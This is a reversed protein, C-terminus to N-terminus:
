GTESGFVPSRLTAFRERCRPRGEYSGRPLMTVAIMPVWIKGTDHFRVPRRGVRAGRGRQPAIWLQGANQETRLGGRQDNSSAMFLITDVTPVKTAITAVIVDCSLVPKAGLGKSQLEAVVLHAAESLPSHGERELAWGLLTLRERYPSGRSRLRCSSSHRGRRRPGTASGGFNGESVQPLVAQSQGGARCGETVRVSPALSHACLCNLWSCSRSRVVERYIGIGTVQNLREILTTESMLTSGVSITSSGLPRL